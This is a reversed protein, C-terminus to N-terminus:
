EVTATELTHELSMLDFENPTGKAEREKQHPCYGLYSISGHCNGCLLCLRIDTPFNNKILWHYYLHGASRLVEKRHQRGNGDLHHLELFEPIDSGCCTCANGYHEFVIRRREASVAKRMAKVKPENAKNWKKCRLRCRKCIKYAGDLPLGCHCNGEAHRKAYLRQYREHMCSKCTRNKSDKEARNTHFDKDRDKPIRCTQCIKTNQVDMVYSVYVVYLHNSM